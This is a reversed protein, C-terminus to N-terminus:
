WLWTEPDPVPENDNMSFFGKANRVIVWIATAVMTLMGIVLDSSCV